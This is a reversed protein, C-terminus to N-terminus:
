VREESRTDRITTWTKEHRPGILNRVNELIVVPPRRENIIEAIGLFHNGRNDRRGLQFGSKSFPQCPFGAALIDHEPIQEKIAAEFILNFDENFSGELTAHHNNLYIQRANPDIESAFVCRAGKKEFAAHFGGIGAFLDVFKLTM